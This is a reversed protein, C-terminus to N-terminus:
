EIGGIKEKFWLPAMLQAAKIIAVAAEDSTAGNLLEFRGDRHIRLVDFITLTIPELDASITYGISEKV